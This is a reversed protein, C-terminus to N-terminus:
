SNVPRGVCVIEEGFVYKTKVSSESKFSIRNMLKLELLALM